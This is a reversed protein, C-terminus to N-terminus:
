QHATYMYILIIELIVVLVTFLIFLKNNRKFTISGLVIYIEFILIMLPIGFGYHMLNKMFFLNLLLLTCILFINKKM